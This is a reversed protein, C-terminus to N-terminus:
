KLRLNKAKRKRVINILNLLILLIFFLVVWFANKQYFKSSDVIEFNSSFEDSISDDYITQLTLIYKGKDLSFKDFKKTIVEGTRVKVTKKDEYVVVSNSDKIRFIMDVDTADKGFNVFIVRSILDSIDKIYHKDIEFKIDFLSNPIKNLAGGINIEIGDKNDNFINKNIRNLSASNEGVLLSANGDKKAKFIIKGFERKGLFGGPMGATKLLIGGENDLIDYGAMAIPTWDSNMEFSVIEVLEVPYKLELINTYSKDKDANFSVDVTFFDGARVVINNSSFLINTKAEVPSVFFCPFLFLVLLFLWRSDIRKKLFMKNILIM